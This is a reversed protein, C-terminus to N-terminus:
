RSGSQFLIQSPSDSKSFLNRAMKSTGTLCQRFYPSTYADEASKSPDGVAKGIVAQLWALGILGGILLPQVLLFLLQRPAGLLLHLNRDLLVDFQDRFGPRSM